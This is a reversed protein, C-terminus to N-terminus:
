RPVTTGNVDVVATAVRTTDFSYRATILSSGPAIGSVLGSPSVAAVTTNSSSWQVQARLNSPANTNLQVSTGATVTVRGPSILLADTSNVAATTGGVAAVVPSSTSECGSLSAAAVAGATLIFLTYPRM